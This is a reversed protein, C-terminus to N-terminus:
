LSTHRSVGMRTPPYEVGHNPFKRALAKAYKQKVHEVRGLAEGHFLEIEAKSAEERFRSPGSYKAKPRTTRWHLLLLIKCVPFDMAAQEGNSYGLITRLLHVPLYVVLMIVPALVFGFLVAFIVSAVIGEGDKLTFFLFIGM